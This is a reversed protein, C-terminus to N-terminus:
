WPPRRRGDLAHRLLDAITGEDTIVATGGATATFQHLTTLRATRNMLNEM